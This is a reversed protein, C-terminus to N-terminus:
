EGCMLNGIKDYAAVGKGEMSCWSERPIKIEKDLGFFLISLFDDLGERGEAKAGKAQGPLIKHLGVLHDLQSDRGDPHIQYSREGTKGPVLRPGMPCRPMIPSYFREEDPKFFQDGILSGECSVSVQCIQLRQAEISV